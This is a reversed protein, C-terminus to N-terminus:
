EPGRVDDVRGIKRGGGGGSGGDGGGGSGGSGGSGNTGRWNVYGGGTRRTHRNRINFPSNEAAAYADFSVLTTIYLGFFHYSEEVFHRIRATLPPSQLVQGGSVYSRPPPPASM